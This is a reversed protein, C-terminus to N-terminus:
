MPFYDLTDKAEKFPTYCWWGLIRVGDPCPSLDLLLINIIFLPLLLPFLLLFSVLLFILFLLLLIFLIIFTSM